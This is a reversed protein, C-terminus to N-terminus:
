ARKRFDRPITRLAKVLNHLLDSRDWDEDASSFNVTAHATTPAEIVIEYCERLNTRVAYARPYQEHRVFGLYRRPIDEDTIFFIDKFIHVRVREGFDEWVVYTEAGTKFRWGPMGWPLLQVIDGKEYHDPNIIAEYEKPQTEEDTKCLFNCIGDILSTLLSKKM